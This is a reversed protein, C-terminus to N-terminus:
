KITNLFAIYFVPSLDLLLIIIAWRMKYIITKPLKDGYVYITSAALFAFIFSLSGGMIYALTVGFLLASGGHGM